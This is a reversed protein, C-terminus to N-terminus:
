SWLYSLFTGAPCAFSADWTRGERIARQCETENTRPVGLGDGVGLVVGVGVDVAAAGAAAGVDQLLSGGGPRRTFFNVAALGVVAVGLVIVAPPIKRASM